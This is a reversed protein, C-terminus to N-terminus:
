PSPPPVEFSFPHKGPISVTRRKQRNIKPEIEVGIEKMRGIIKMRIRRADSLGFAKVPFRDHFRALLFKLDECKQGADFPNNKLPSNKIADSYAAFGILAIKDPAGCILMELIEIGRQHYHPHSALRKGAQAINAAISLDPHAGCIKDAHGIVYKDASACDMPVFDVAANKWQMSFRLYGLFSHM